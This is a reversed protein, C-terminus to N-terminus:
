KVPCFGIFFKTTIEKFHGYDHPPSFIVPENLKLGVCVFGNEGHLYHADGTTVHTDECLLATTKPRNECSDHRGGHNQRSELDHGPDKEGPGDRVADPLYAISM